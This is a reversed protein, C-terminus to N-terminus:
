EKQWKDVWEKIEVLQRDRILDRHDACKELVDYYIGNLVARNGKRHDIFKKALAKGGFCYNAIARNRVMDDGNWHYGRKDGHHHLAGGPMIWKKKGLVALTFNMFNEGGGYIGLEVPWGGMYDYLERSMMMGCTSMCPVEYPEPEDRYGTFSYHVHGVPWDVALKYILKHYEMIHYTLPLHLTGEMEKHHIKYYNFMNFIADREVVCHSDVFLLFEGTSAKIGANKAQWHSLKKDYKIAKLWKHGRQVAPVQESARDPVQGGKQKAVEDCFNDIAIFEFDVRGKLEEAIQMITFGVMPWEQVFPCIISLKPMIKKEKNALAQLNDWSAV